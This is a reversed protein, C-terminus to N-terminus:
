PTGSISRKTFKVAKGSYPNPRSLLVGAEYIKYLLLLILIRGLVSVVGGCVDGVDGHHGPQGGVANILHIAGIRRAPPWGFPNALPATM